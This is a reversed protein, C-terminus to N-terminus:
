AAEAEIEPRAPSLRLPATAKPNSVSGLTPAPSVTANDVNTQSVSVLGLRPDSSLSGGEATPSDSITRLGFTHDM